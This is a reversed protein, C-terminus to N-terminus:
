AAGGKNRRTMGSLGWYIGGIVTTPLLVLAHVIVAFAASANEDNGLTMMSQIVFYDFTGVYGPTGPILTALNGIPLALWSAVPISLAPIASAVWAYTVGELCWALLSWFILGFMLWGQAIEELTRFVQNCIQEIKHGLQPLLRSVLGACYHSIGKFLRPFRIVLLISLVIASVAGGGLPVLHDVRLEMWFLIAGLITLIALLDLLREVLMSAIVTGASVGLTKNFAFSRLIDGARFPLVNNAAFSAFLPGTCRVFTLRTNERRLILQWRRTRAAYGLFFFGLALLMRWPDSAAGIEGLKEPRVGQFAMWAFLGAIVIGVLLKLYKM